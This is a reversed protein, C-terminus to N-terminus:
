FKGHALYADVPDVGELIAKRVLNETNILETVRAATANAMAAPIVVIGDRDAFIIDGGNIEVNGIVIPENFGTPMWKGVVDRPTYYRCWVPFAIDSIFQTDRCGGDVIYGKVQKFTLTEASLEGMHAVSSDNPQCILVHGSPAKSLMECWRVLSEHETQETNIQGAITYAPGCIKKDKLMPRISDPLVCNPHGMARLVDYIIGSYANELLKVSEVKDRGRCM